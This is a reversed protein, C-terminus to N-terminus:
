DGDADIFDVQINLAQLLDMKLPLVAEQLEDYVSLMVANDTLVQQNLNDSLLQSASEATAWQSRLATAITSPQDDGQM